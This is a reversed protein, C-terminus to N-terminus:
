LCPNERECDCYDYGVGKGGIRDCENLKLVYGECSEGNTKKERSGVKRRKESWM